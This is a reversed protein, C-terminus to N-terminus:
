CVQTQSLTRNKKKKQSQKNTTGWVPIWRNRELCGIAPKVLRRLAKTCPYRGHKAETPSGRIELSQEM